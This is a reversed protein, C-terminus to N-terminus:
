PGGWLMHAIHLTEGGLTPYGTVRLFVRIGLVATVAAVLFIEFLENADSNRVWVQSMIAAIRDGRSASGTAQKGQVCDRM